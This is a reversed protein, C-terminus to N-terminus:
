RGARFLRTSLADFDDDWGIADGSARAQGMGPSIMLELYREYQSAARLEAFMEGGHNQAALTSGDFKSFFHDHDSESGPVFGRMSLANIAAGYLIPESLIRAVPDTVDRCPPKSFALTVTSM